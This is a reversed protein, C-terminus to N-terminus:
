IVYVISFTKLPIKLTTKTQCLSFSELTHNELLLISGLRIMIPNLNETLNHEDSLYLEFESVNAIHLMKPLMTSTLFYIDM